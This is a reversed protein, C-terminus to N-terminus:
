REDKFVKGGKMVFSVKEMARIDALPDTKVAVLDAAKGPAISGASDAIGLAAAANVTAAKLAQEPPLGAAVLEGFEEPVHQVPLAGLDTGFLIPVGARYAKGTAAVTEGYIDRTYGSQRMAERSMRNVILTPTFATGRKAMLAIARDDIPGHEITDVGAEIALRAGESTGNVHAAVKRNLRHAMGVIAELEGPEELSQVKPDFMPTSGQRFKIVDAGRAVETRVARRCEVEGTCEGRNEFYPELERREGWRSPTYDAGSVNFQPEVALMRPGEVIGANIADRLDYTTSTPDGLDRVTTFGMMLMAKVTPLAALVLQSARGTYAHVFVPMPNPDDIDLRTSVHTHVDILGPTVWSDKLDVVTDGAVYGDKVAVIKGDQILISQAAKVGKGPEAILHGAHVVTVPSAAHASSVMILAAVAGMVFRVM